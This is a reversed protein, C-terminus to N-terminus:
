SRGALLAGAPVNVAVMAAERVAHSLDRLTQTRVAAASASAAGEDDAAVELVRWLTVAREALARAVPPWSPPLALVRTRLAAGAERGGLEAEPRWRALDVDELAETAARLARRLARDAQEVIRSPEVTLPSGGGDDAEVTRLPFVQWRVGRYSSGRQDPEPVLGVPEARGVVVASQAVLASSTFPGAGHLGLPDGPRPFAVRVSRPRQEIMEPLADALALDAERGAIDAFGQVVHGDSGAEIAAVAQAVTARGAALTAVWSALLGAPRPDVPPRPV